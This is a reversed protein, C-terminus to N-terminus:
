WWKEYFLRDDSVGRRRLGSLFDDTMMSRPGCLYCVVKTRDACQQLAAELDAETVRGEAGNRM